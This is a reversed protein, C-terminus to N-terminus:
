ANTTTTSGTFSPMENLTDALNTKGADQLQEVGVVTVPTPAEYGDRVIRSGTIVIEEVPEQATQPQAARAPAPMTALLAIVSAATTVVIGRAAFRRRDFESLTSM